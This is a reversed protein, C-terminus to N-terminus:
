TYSQHAEAPQGLDRQVYGLNILTGALGDQYEPVGPQAKVLQRAAQEAQRYSHLAEERSGLEYQIYGVRFHQRWVDRQLGPDGPRAARFQQYFPLAKELLLRKLRHLEGGVKPEKLLPHDRAIGVWEDVVKRALRFNEGARELNGKAVREAGEARSLNAR